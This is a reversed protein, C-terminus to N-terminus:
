GTSAEALPQENLYPSEYLLPRPVTHSESETLAYRGEDDRQVEGKEAMELLTNRVIVPPQKSTTMWGRRIAARAIEAPRLWPEDSLVTQIWKRTTKAGEEAGSERRSPSEPAVATRPHRSVWWAKFEQVKKLEGQLRIIESDLESVVPDLGM